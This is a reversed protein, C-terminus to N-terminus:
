ITRITFVSARWTRWTKYLDYFEYFCELIFFYHVFLWVISFYLQVLLNFGDYALNKHAYRIFVNACMLFLFIVFVCSLNNFILSKHAGIYPILSRLKGYKLVREIRYEEDCVECKRINRVNLWNELCHAHVGGM